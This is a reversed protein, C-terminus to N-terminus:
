LTAGQPQVTSFQALITSLFASHSRIFVRFLVQIRCPWRRRMSNIIRLPSGFITCQQERQHPERKHGANLNLTTLHFESLSEDVNSRQGPSKTACSSRTSPSSSLAVIGARVAALSFANSFGVFHSGRTPWTGFAMSRAVIGLLGIALRASASVIRGVLRHDLPKFCHCRVWYRYTSRPSDYHNVLHVLFAIGACGLARVRLWCAFGFLLSKM